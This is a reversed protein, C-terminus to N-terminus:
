LREVVMGKDGMGRDVKDKSSDMDKGRNDTRHLNHHLNHHLNRHLSQSSFAADRRYTSSSFPM